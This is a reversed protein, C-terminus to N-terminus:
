REIREPLGLRVRVAPCDLLLRTLVVVPGPIDSTGAEWRRVTRGPKNNRVKLGVIRGFANTSLGLKHRAEKLEAPTM